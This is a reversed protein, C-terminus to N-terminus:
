EDFHRREASAKQRAPTLLIACAAASLALGAGWLAAAHVAALFTEPAGEQAFVFGVLATAVLGGVRAVASNFGSAAGVHATDVTAMVSTTLPAVSIAMGVAVLFTAPLVDTWYTIGGPNLRLYLVMGAAVLLAGTGLLWRGGIRAALGGMLPSGLGILV